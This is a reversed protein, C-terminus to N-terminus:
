TEDNRIEALMAAARAENGALAVAASRVIRPMLLGGFWAAALPNARVVDEPDVVDANCLIRVVLWQEPSFESDAM